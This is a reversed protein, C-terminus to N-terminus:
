RKQTKASKKAKSPQKKLQKKSEAKKHKAVMSSKAPKPAPKAYAPVTLSLVSVSLLLTKLATALHM